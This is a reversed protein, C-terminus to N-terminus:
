VVHDAVADAEKEHPDDPSSVSLKPQIFSGGNFFSPTEQTGFFSSEEAKRFFSGAAGQKPASSATKSTKEATSFM